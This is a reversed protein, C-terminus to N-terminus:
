SPEQSSPTETLAELLKERTAKDKGALQRVEAYFAAMNGGHTEILAAFAPVYNSYVAVSALLANNVGNAFFRDYGAFGGWSNKLKAYDDSLHKFQLAKASRKEDTGTNSAYLEALQGRYRILLAVFEAQRARAASWRQTNEIADPGSQSALWRRVAEREVAVAFSENFQSDDRVYVVHHALEHFIVKALEMDPYNIFTSLVPDDFWGLTSYAAVGGIYTDLGEGALKRQYAQADAEAYFGRYVVCGAFPFCSESPSVSFEPAAYVNWVVYPRGLDVYRRYSGNDPLALERSAFDRIARASALRRSLADDAGRQLEIEEFSVAHRMVSLHGDIAQFYYGVANCGTMAIAAFAILMCTRAHMTM